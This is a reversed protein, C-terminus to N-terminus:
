FGLFGKPLRSDLLVVFFVYVASITLASAFLVKTWRYPEMVRFLFLLLLFTDILFGLTTLLGVYLFLAAVVLSVKVLGIKEPAENDHGKITKVLSIVALIGLILAALFPLFAPGPQRPTGIDLRVSEVCAAAALAIWFLDAVFYAKKM